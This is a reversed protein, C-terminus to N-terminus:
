EFQWDLGENGLTEEFLPLSVAVLHLLRAILVHREVFDKCLDVFLMGPM